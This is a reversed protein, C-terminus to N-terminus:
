LISQIVGLIRNLIGLSWNVRSLFTKYWSLDVARAEPIVSALNENKNERWSWDIIQETVVIASQNNRKAHGTGKISDLVRQHPSTTKAEQYGDESSEKLRNQTASSHRVEPTALTSDLGPTCQTTPTTSAQDELRKSTNHTSSTVPITSAHNDLCPPTTTGNNHRPPTYQALIRLGATPKAPMTVASALLCLLLM